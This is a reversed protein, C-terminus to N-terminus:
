CVSPLLAINSNTYRTETNKRFYVNYSSLIKLIDIHCPMPIILFAYM